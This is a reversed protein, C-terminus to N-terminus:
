SSRGPGGLHSCLIDQCNWTCLLDLVDQSDVYELHIHGAYLLHLTQELISYRFNRVVLVEGPPLLSIRTAMKISLSSLMLRHGPLTRGLGRMEEVTTLRLDPGVSRDLGLLEGRRHRLYVM